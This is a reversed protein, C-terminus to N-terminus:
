NVLEGKGHKGALIEKHIIKFEKILHSDSFENNGFIASDIKFCKSELRSCYKYKNGSKVIRVQNESFFKFNTSYEVDKNIRFWEKPQELTATM